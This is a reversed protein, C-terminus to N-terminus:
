KIFKMNTYVKKLREDTYVKDYIEGVKTIPPHGSKRLVQRGLATWSILMDFAMFIVLITVITDGLKKPIKEIQKSLFPYIWHILITVALGWFLMYGISTRGNINLLQDSYNWSAVGLFKELFFSVVYEIIGGLIAGYLFTKAPHRKKKGLIWIILVISAGYLPNLPGYIVGRHTAFYFEHKIFHHKLFSLIDEYITGLFCGFMFIIFLKSFSLGPAFKNKDSYIWNKIKNM